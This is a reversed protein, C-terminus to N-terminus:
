TLHKSSWVICYMTELDHTKVREMHTPVLYTWYKLSDRESDERWTFLSEISVSQKPEGPNLKRVSSGSWFHVRNSYLEFHMCNSYLNQTPFKWNELYRGSVFIEVKTFLTSINLLSSLTSHSRDTVWTTSSTSSGGPAAGTLAMRHAQWRGAVPFPARPGAEM